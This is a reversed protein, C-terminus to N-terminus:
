DDDDRDIKYNKDKESSYYRYDDLKKLLYLILIVISMLGIKALIGEM